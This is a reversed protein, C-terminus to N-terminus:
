HFTQSVQSSGLDLDKESLKGLTAFFTQAEAIEPEELM